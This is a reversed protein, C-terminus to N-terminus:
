EEVKTLGAIFRRVANSASKAVKSELQIKRSLDGAVYTAADIADIESAPRSGRLCARFFEAAQAKSFWGRGECVCDAKPMRYRCLPCLRHPLDADLEALMGMIAAHYKRRSIGFDPLVRTLNNYTRLVEKLQKKRLRAAWQLLAEQPLDPRYSDALFLEEESAFDGSSSHNKISEEVLRRTEAVTRAM